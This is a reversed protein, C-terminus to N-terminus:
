VVVEQNVPLINTEYNVKLSLGEVNWEPWSAPRIEFYFSDSQKIFNNNVDNPYITFGLVIDNAGGGQKAWTEPNSSITSNIDLKSFSFNVTSYLYNSNTVTAPNVYWVQNSLLSDMDWEVKFFQHIFIVSPYIPQFYVKANSIKTIAYLGSTKGGVSGNGNTAINIAVVENIQPKLNQASFISYNLENRALESNLTVGYNAKPLHV